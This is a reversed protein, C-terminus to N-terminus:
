NKLNEEIQYLVGAALTPKPFLMERASININTESQSKKQIKITVQAGGIEGELHGLEENANKTNGMQAMARSSARYLRQYKVKLDAEAYDKGTLMIAATFPLLSMGALGAAGYIAAGKIATTRLSEALILSIFQQASTINKFTKKMGINYVLVVPEGKATYDKSVIRGMELNMLDIQMPIAKATKKDKPEKAQGQETVKLSDVNLNGQANKELGLEKLIVDIRSLHLKGTLIAFLNCHVNVKSVDLLIGRSFGPPNYMKLDKIRVSNIGLSLGGIDVKAGTVQTAVGAVVSKIVLDKILSLAFLVIVVIIAVRINKKM